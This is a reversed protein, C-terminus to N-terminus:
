GMGHGFPEDGIWREDVPESALQYRSDTSLRIRNEPSRNDLSCHLTFMGFLLLDGPEFEATLWRGGFRRQVDGVDKTLWGGAYQVDTKGMVGDRDVDLAGYTAQLEKIRHSGALIVLPGDALPVDGM